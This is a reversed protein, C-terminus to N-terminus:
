MGATPGRPDAGQRSQGKEEPEVRDGRGAGLGRESRGLLGARRRLLGARGLSWLGAISGRRLGGGGLGAGRM